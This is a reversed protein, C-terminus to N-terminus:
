QENRTRPTLCGQVVCCFPKCYKESESIITTENWHKKVVIDPIPLIRDLTKRYDM